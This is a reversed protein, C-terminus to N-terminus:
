ILATSLSPFLILLMTVLWAVIVFPASGIFVDGLRAEGRMLSAITFAALGFPPTLLGVEVAIITVVGLWILDIGMMQFAPAVVPVLILVISLSDLLTGMALIVAAYILVHVTPSVDLAVLSGALKMPIGTLTLMRTFLSAGIIMIMVSAVVLATDSLTKWSSGFTIKGKLLAIVFAATAGVAGAELATFFGSYLGGLVLVILAISPGGRRAMEALGMLPEREADDPLRFDKPRALGWGIILACYSGALILGPLIGAVFLTGISQETLIGYLIFLASPPILMGLLSSGAVVGVSFRMAYGHRRMEPVAIQTFVTVSAITVGTIAAFVANALVTGIGLGAPLRRALQNMVAFIDRGMDALLVFQGMLIFLPVVAFEYTSISGLASLRLLAEAQDAGRLFMMAVFSGLMLAVGVHLGSYILVVIGATAWVGLEFPTM